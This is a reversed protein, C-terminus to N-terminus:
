SCAEGERAPEDSDGVRLLVAVESLDLRDCVEFLSLPDPDPDPEFGPDLGPVAM